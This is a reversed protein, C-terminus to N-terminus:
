ARCNTATLNGQRELWVDHAVFVSYGSDDKGSQFVQCYDQGALLLTVFPSGNPWLITQPKFLEIYDRWKRGGQEAVLYKEFVDKPNVNTRGDIVVPHELNGQADSYRYMVYGGRGFDNLIPHPLNEGIMFDLADVPVVERNIPQRWTSVGYVIAICIFLFGLGEHPTRAVLARFRNIAEALNGLRQSSGAEARWLSALAAALAITAFPLFKVVALGAASLTLALFLRSFPVSRPSHHLFFLLLAALIVLFGTSYQMLTAPQFEAIARLQFPHGSKAILTLWEGGLYPTLLSGLFAVGGAVLSYRWADRRFSWCLVAFLGIAATLHTNAWLAMFLMLQLLSRLKPGERQIRDAVLILAAFYVWVLVQPRLTFHNFSATTAWIGLLAGFFWDQSLRGLVYMLSFSLLVGFALKLAVLGHIGFRGDVWAFLLEPAWSYARWFQGQGFHNWYDQHPIAGHALMWKGATIHWWLDPDVIPGSIYIGVALAVCFWLAIKM